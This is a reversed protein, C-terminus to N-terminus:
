FVLIHLAWLIMLWGILPLGIMWFVTIGFDKWDAWTMKRSAILTREGEDIIDQIQQFTPTPDPM